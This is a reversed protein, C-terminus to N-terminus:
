CLQIVPSSHHVEEWQALDAQRFVFFKTVVIEAMQCILEDTLLQTKILEVAQGQEAKIEPTKYKFTQAPSFVMKICARILRMGLLCIKEKKGPSSEESNSDGTQSFIDGFKVILGWYARTLEVSNPLLAFAAPHTDAMESHLKALQGLHKEVLDTAPFVIVPPDSSILALFQGFQEQSHAWIDRVEKDHNPNEYGVLLLKRLVKLALLSNEMAEMAGGEDDGQGNLFNVWQTVKQMYIHGLLLVLEPTVSQLSTQSRRLRATALEKVVRVLISLGRQLHLQNSNQVDRLTTIISTIADPWEM